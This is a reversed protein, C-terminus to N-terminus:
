TFPKLYIMYCLFKIHLKFSFIFGVTLIKIVQLQNFYNKEDSKQVAIDYNLNSKSIVNLLTIVPLM